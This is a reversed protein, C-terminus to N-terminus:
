PLKVYVVHEIHCGYVTVVEEGSTGSSCEEKRTVTGFVVVGVLTEGNETEQEVVIDGTFNYVNETEQIFLLM